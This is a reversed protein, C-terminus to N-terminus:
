WLQHKESKGKKFNLVLGKQRFKNDQRNLGFYCYSCSFVGNNEKM